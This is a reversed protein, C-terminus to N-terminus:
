ATAAKQTQATDTSPASVGEPLAEIDSSAFLAAVSMGRGARPVSGSKSTGFRWLWLNNGNPQVIKEKPQLMIEVVRDPNQGLPSIRELQGRKGAVVMAMEGPRCIVPKNMADVCITPQTLEVLYAVFPGYQKSVFSEAAIFYGRLPVYGDKSPHKASEPKYMKRDLAVDAFASDDFDISLAEFQQEETMAPAVQAQAKTTSATTPPKAM